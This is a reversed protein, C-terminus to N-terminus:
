APLLRLRRADARPELYARGGTRNIITPPYNPDVGLRLWVPNDACLRNRDSVGRWLTRTGIVMSRGGTPAGGRRPHYYGPDFCGCRVLVVFVQKSSFGVVLWVERLLKRPIEARPNAAATTGSTTRGAAAAVALMEDPLSSDFRLGSIEMQCVDPSSRKPAAGWVM